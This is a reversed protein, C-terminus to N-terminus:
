QAPLEEPTLLETLRRLDSKGSQLLPLPTSTLVVRVPVAAASVTRHVAARIQEVTVVPPTTTVTLAALRLEGVAVLVPIVAVDVVGPVGRIAEEVLAPEVRVGGIKVMRDSRGRLVLDGAADICGVDGTPFRTWGDDRREMGEAARHFDGEFRSYGKV